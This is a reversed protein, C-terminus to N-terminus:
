NLKNRVKTLGSTGETYDTFTTGDDSYSITFTRVFQDCCDRGQTQVESIEAQGRLDVQLWEDLRLAGAAWGGAKAGSAQLNLRGRAAGLNVNYESSATIQSDLIAGDEM